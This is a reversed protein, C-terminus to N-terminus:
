FASIPRTELSFTESLDMIDTVRIFDAPFTPTARITINLIGRIMDAESNNEPGCITPALRFFWDARMKTQLYADVSSAVQGQLERTNPQSRVYQLYDYLDSKMQDWIEMVSVYRKNNDRSTNIGNLFKFVRLGGDYYVVETGNRTFADLNDPTARVNSFTVGNITGNPEIAAPSFHPPRSLRVGVYIGGAGATQYSKGNLLSGQVSGAIQVIRDSDMIQRLVGAQRPSVNPPLEVVGRRLGTLPTSRECQAKLEEFVERFDNDGYYIGAVVIWAVNENELARLAALYGDKRASVLEEATEVTFNSGRTLKVGAIFSSGQATLKTVSGSYARDQIELPPAVRLPLARYLAQDVMTYLERVTVPEIVPLFYARILNSNRTELYVGSSNDVTRNDLYWLEKKPGGLTVDPNTDEVELYYKASDSTVEDPIISVRINNGYVGPNLAVVRLIADGKLSYFDTYAYTAGDRGGKFNFYNTAGYDEVTFDTTGDRRMLVDQTQLQSRFELTDGASLGNLLGADPNVLTVTTANTASVEFEKGDVVLFYGEGNVNAVIDPTADVTVINGIHGVYVAKPGRVHRILNWRLRNSNLGLLSPTLEFKFPVQAIDVKVDSVMSSFASDNYVAYELDRLIVALETGEPYATEEDSKGGVKVSTKLFGVNFITNEKLYLRSDDLNGFLLELGLYEQQLVQAEQSNALTTQYNFKIYKGGSGESYVVYSDVPYNNFGDNYLVPQSATGITFYQRTTNAPNLTGGDLPRFNYGVVYQTIAPFHVKFEDLLDTTVSSTVLVYDGKRIISRADGAVKFVIVGASYPTTISAVTFTGEKTAFNLKTGTTIDSNSLVGSLNVITDAGDYTVSTVKPVIAVNAGVQAMGGQSTKLVLSVQGGGVTASDVEFPNGAILAISGSVATQNPANPTSDKIFNNLTIGYLGSVTAIQGSYATATSYHGKVLVAKVGTGYSFPNSAIILDQQQASVASRLAFGQKLYKEVYTNSGEEYTVIQYDDASSNHVTLNLTENDDEYVVRQQSDAPQVRAVMYSMVARGKFNDNAVFTNRTDVKGYSTKTFNPRGIYDLTLEFGTTSNFDDLVNTNSVESEYGTVPQVYISQGSFEAKFKSELASPVARAIMANTAGQRFAQQLAISGSSNDEGYLSALVERQSSTTPVVPGRNFEGIIAYRNRWAPRTPAPGILKSNFSINPFAYDVM